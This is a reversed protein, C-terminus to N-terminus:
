TVGFVARAQMMATPGLEAIPRGDLPELSDVVNDLADDDPEVKQLALAAQRFFAKVDDRTPRGIQEPLALGASAPNGSYGLVVVRLPGLDRNAAARAVADVLQLAGGTATTPTFGDLVLWVPQRMGRVEDALWPVFRSVITEAQATPDFTPSEKDAVTGAVLSALERVDIPAGARISMDIAKVCKPGGHESLYHIFQRTYTKGTGSEGMVLLARRSQSTLMQKLNTRLPSRDIFPLDDWLLATQFVDDPIPTPDPDPELNPDPNPAEPDADAPEGLLRCLLTKGQASNPNVVVREVLQRLSRQRAATITVDQWLYAVPQELDVYGLDVGAELAFGRVEAKSQFTKRLFDILDRADPHTLDLPRDLLGM